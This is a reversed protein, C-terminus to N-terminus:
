GLRCCACTRCGAAPNLTAVNTALRACRGLTGVAAHEVADLTRSRQPVFGVHQTLVSPVGLRRALMLAPLSTAYLVDQVHVIDARSLERRLGRVLEVPEPVPYPVNLRRDIAYLSRIRNVSHAFRRESRPAGRFRCCLVSVEHGRRGLGDALNETFREIGGVHPASNASVLLVRM